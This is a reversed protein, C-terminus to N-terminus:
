GFRTKGRNSASVYRADIENIFETLYSDPLGMFCELWAVVKRGVVPDYSNLASETCAELSYLNSQDRKSTPHFGAAWRLMGLEMLFRPWLRILWMCAPDRPKPHGRPMITLAGNSASDVEHALDYLFEESNGRFPPGDYLSRITSLLSKLDGEDGFVIIGAANKTPKSYLM